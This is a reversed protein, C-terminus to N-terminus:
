RPAFIVYLTTPQAILLVIGQQELFEPGIEIIDHDPEGQMYM